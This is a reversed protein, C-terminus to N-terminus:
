FLFFSLINKVHPQQYQQSPQEQISRATRLNNPPPPINYGINSPMKAFVAQSCISTGQRNGSFPPTNEGYMRSRAAYLSTGQRNGSFPPTNEGYMRSRDAYLSRSSMTYYNHCYTELDTVYLHYNQLIFFM